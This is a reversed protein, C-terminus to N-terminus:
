DAEHILKVKDVDCSSCLYRNLESHTSIKGKRLRSSRKDTCDVRLLMRELVKVTDTDIEIGIDIDHRHARSLVIAAWSFVGKYHIRDEPM